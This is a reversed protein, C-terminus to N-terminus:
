FEVEIVKCDLKKLLALLKIYLEFTFRYEKHGNYGVFRQVQVTQIGLAQAVSAYSLGTKEILADLKECDIMLDYTPRCLDQLDVTFGKNPQKKAYCSKCLALYEGSELKKAIWQNPRDEREKCVPCIRNPVLDDLTRKRRDRYGQKLVDAVEEPITWDTQLDLRAKIRRDEQKRRREELKTKIRALRQVQDFNRLDLETEKSGLVIKKQDM